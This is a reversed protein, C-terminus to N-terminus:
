ITIDETNYLHSKKKNSGEFEVWLAIGNTGNKFQRFSVNNSCTANNVRDYIRTLPHIITGEIGNVTVKKNHFNEHIYPILEREIKNMERVLEFDDKGSLDKYLEKCEKNEYLFTHFKCLTNYVGILNIVKASLELM